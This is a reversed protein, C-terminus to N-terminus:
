HGRGDQPLLCKLHLILEVTITAIAKSKADGILLSEGREHTASVGCQPHHGQFDVTDLKQFLIPFGECVRVFIDHQVQTLVVSHRKLLCEYKSLLLPMHSLVISALSKEAINIGLRKPNVWHGFGVCFQHSFPDAQADM